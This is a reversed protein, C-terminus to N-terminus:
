WGLVVSWGSCFFHVAYSLVVPIESGAKKEDFLSVPIKTCQVMM